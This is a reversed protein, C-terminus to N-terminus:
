LNEMVRLDQYTGLILKTLGLISGEESIEHEDAMARAQWLARNVLSRAEMLRERIEHQDEDELNMTDDDEDSLSCPKMFKVDLSDSLKIYDRPTPKAKDKLRVRILNLITEADTENPDFM